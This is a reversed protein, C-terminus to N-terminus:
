PRRRRAARRALVEHHSVLEGRAIAAKSEALMALEEPSLEEDEPLLDAPLGAEVAALYRAVAPLTDDPLRDLLLHLDERISM